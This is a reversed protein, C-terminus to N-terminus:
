GILNKLVETDHVAIPQLFYGAVFGHALPKTFSGTPKLSWWIELSDVISLNTEHKVHLIQWTAKVKTEATLIDHSNEMRKNGVVQDGYIPIFKSM